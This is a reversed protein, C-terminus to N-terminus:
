EAEKQDQGEAQDITWTYRVGDVEVSDEGADAALEIAEYVAETADEDGFVGDADRISGYENLTGSTAFTGDAYITITTM